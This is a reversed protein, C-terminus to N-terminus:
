QLFERIDIAVPLVFGDNYDKHEGILNVSGPRPLPVVGQRRAM